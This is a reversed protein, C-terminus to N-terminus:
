AVNTFGIARARERLSRMLRDYGEPEVLTVWHWRQLREPTDCEELKLPILFITGEPQEDAIDLAHKIEKQVYGTKNVSTQSLCVVVIHSNRVAATIERHWDHGPLLEEEDLWPAFGDARLRRHLDRIRPKDTSAHCLFVRLRERPERTPTAAAKRAKAECVRCTRPVKVANLRVRIPARCEDCPKEYWKTKTADKCAQHARPPSDWDRHVNMPKGCISCPLEYWACNLHYHAARRDGESVRLDGGCQACQVTILERM